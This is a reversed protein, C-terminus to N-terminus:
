TARVKTAQPVAGDEITYAYTEFQGRKGSDTYVFLRHGDTRVRVIGWASRSFAIFSGREQADADSVPRAYGEYKFFAVLETVFVLPESVRSYRGLAGMLNARPHIYEVRENEDGSSVVSVLPSVARLFAASFDHSGHHPVKMVEASLKEKHQRVLTRESQNNMDGTYLLRVNGYTLRLLVSHGNITHSDDTGKFVEDSLDLSEDELRPNRSPAGLFPLGYIGDKEYPIPGLVEVKIGEDSLFSFADDDGYALRRIDMPGFPGEYRQRYSSLAKKWARFPENMVTDPTQTLDDVLDTIITRNGIPVTAGFMEKPTLDQGNMKGPRKVLGNHYVRRPYMFLRKSKSDNKETAHIATLGAFHDADGHTVVICDFQQPNDKSSGRYRAALYRAFLNGMGGDIIITKGKPTQVISGDGQQVDVFDMRLVKNEEPAVIIEDPTVKRPIIYCPSPESQLSGDKNRLYYPVKLYTNTKELVEVTDGWALTGAYGEREPTRYIGVLDYNICAFEPM